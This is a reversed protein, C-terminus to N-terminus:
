TILFQNGYDNICFDEFRVLLDNISNCFKLRKAEAQLDHHYIDNIFGIKAVLKKNIAMVNNSLMKDKQDDLTAIKKIQNFIKNKHVIKQAFESKPNKTKITSM